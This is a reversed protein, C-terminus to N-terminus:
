PAGRGNSMGEASVLLSMLSVSECEVLVLSPTRTLHKEVMVLRKVRDIDRAERSPFVIVHSLARNVKVSVRGDRVRPGLFPEEWPMCEM